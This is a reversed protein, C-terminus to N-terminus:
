ENNEGQKLEEESIGDRYEHIVNFKYTVDQFEKQNESTKLIYAKDEDRKYYVVEDGTFIGSATVCCVWDDGQFYQKINQGSATCLKACKHFKGSNEGIKQVAMVNIESVMKKAIKDGVGDKGLFEVLAGWKQIAKAQNASITFNSSQETRTESTGDPENQVINTLGATAARKLGTRKMGSGVKSFPRFELEGGAIEKQQNEDFVSAAHEFAEDIAMGKMLADPNRAYRLAEPNLNKDDDSAKARDMKRNISSGSNIVQSLLEADFDGESM